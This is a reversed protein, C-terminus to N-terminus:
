RYWAPKRKEKFAAVGEEAEATRVHKADRTAPDFITSVPPTNFEGVRAKLTAMAGPAGHLLADVLADIRADMESASAIESM